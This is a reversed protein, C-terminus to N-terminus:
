RQRSRCDARLYIAQSPSYVTHVDFIVPGIHLEDNRRVDAEPKFYLTDALQSIDQNGLEHEDGAASGAPQSRRCDLTGLLTRVVTQGGAGDSTPIDRYQTATVNLLAAARAAARASM